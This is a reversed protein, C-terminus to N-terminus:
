LSRTTASVSRPVGSIKRFQLSWFLEKDDVMDDFEENLYYGGQPAWARTVLPNAWLEHHVCDFLNGEDDDMDWQHMASVVLDPYRLHLCDPIATLLVPNGDLAADLVNHDEKLSNEFSPVSRQLQFM